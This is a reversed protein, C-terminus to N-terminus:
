SHMLTKSQIVIGRAEFLLSYTYEPAYPSPFLPYYTVPDSPASPGEFIAQLFLKLIM